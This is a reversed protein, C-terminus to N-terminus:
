RECSDAYLWLYHTAADCCQNYEGAAIPTSMSTGSLLELAVAGSGADLTVLMGPNAVLADRLAYGQARAATMVVPWGSAGTAAKADCSLTAFLMQCESDTESGYIVAALGGGAMCNLVKNCFSVGGGRQILCIRGEAGLCTQNALGCNFMGTTISGRASGGMVVMPPKTLLQMSIAEAPEVRLQGLMNYSSNAAAWNPVTSLIGLGPGAWEVDPNFSSFDTVIDDWAVAGVAAATCDPFVSICPLPNCIDASKNFTSHSCNRRALM